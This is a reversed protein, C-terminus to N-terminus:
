LLNFALEVKAIAYPWHSTRRSVTPVKHNKAPTLPFAKSLIACFICKSLLMLVLATHLEPNLVARNRLYKAM